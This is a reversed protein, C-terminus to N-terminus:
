AQLTSPGRVCNRGADKAEYLAADARRIAEDPSVPERPPVSYAGISLTLPLLLDRM